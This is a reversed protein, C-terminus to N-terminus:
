PRKILRDKRWAQFVERIVAEPPAEGNCRSAPEMKVMGRIRFCYKGKRMAFWEQLVQSLTLEDGVKDKLRKYFDPM